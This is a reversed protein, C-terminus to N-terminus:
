DETIGLESPLDAFTNSEDLEDNVQALMQKFGNKQIKGRLDQFQELTFSNLNQNIQGLQNEVFSEDPKRSQVDSNKLHSVKLISQLSQDMEAATGYMMSAM